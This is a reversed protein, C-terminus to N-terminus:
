FRFEAEFLEVDSQAEEHMGSVFANIELEKQPDILKFFMAIVKHQTLEHNVATRERRTFLNQPCLTLQLLTLNQIVKQLFASCKEILCIAGKKPM